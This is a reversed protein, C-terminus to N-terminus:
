VASFAVAGTNAIVEWETASKYGLLLEEGAADFTATNNTADFTVGEATTVVATGSTLTDLKIRCLCGPAPAALTLGAIGEGGDILAVGSIAVAGDADYRTVDNAALVNALKAGDAVTAPVAFVLVEVEVGAGTAAELARALVPGNVATVARGSADSELLADKAFAAGAEIVATGIAVAPFVEGSSVAFQSVGIASGNAGAVVGAATVFRNATIAGTAALTLTLLAVSQKM